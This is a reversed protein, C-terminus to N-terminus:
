KKESSELVWSLSYMQFHGTEINGFYPAGKTAASRWGSIAVEPTFPEFIVGVDTFSRNMGEVNVGRQLSKQLVESGNDESVRAGELLCRNGARSKTYFPWSCQLTSSWM